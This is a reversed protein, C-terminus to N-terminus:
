FCLVPVHMRQDVPSSKQELLIHMPTSSTLLLRFNAFVALHHGIQHHAHASLVNQVAETLQTGHFPYTEQCFINIEQQM